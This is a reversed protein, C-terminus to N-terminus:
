SLNFSSEELFIKTTKESLLNFPLIYNQIDSRLMLISYKMDVAEIEDEYVLQEFISNSNSVISTITTNNSSAILINYPDQDWNM